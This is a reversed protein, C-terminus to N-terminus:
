GFKELKEMARREAWFIPGFIGYDPAPQNPYQQEVLARQDPTDFFLPFRAWAVVPVRQEVAADEFPATVNDFLPELSDQLFLYARHRQYDARYARVFAQSPHGGEATSWRIKPDPLGLYWEPYSDDYTASVVLTSDRMAM